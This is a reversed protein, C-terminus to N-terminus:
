KSKFHHVQVARLDAEHKKQFQAIRKAVIHAYKKTGYNADVSANHFLYYLDNDLESDDDVAGTIITFAKEQTSGQQSLRNTLLVANGAICGVTGCAPGSKGFMDKIEEHGVVLWEGMYVRKPEELIYAAIDSMLGYATKANSRRATMPGTLM